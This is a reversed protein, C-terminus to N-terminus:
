ATRQSGDNIGLNQKRQVGSGVWRRDCSVGLIATSRVFPKGRDDISIHVLLVDFIEPVPTSRQGQTYYSTSPGKTSGTVCFHAPSQQAECLMCTTSILLILVKM